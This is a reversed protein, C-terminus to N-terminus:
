SCLSGESQKPHCAAKDLSNNFSDKPCCVLVQRKFEPPYPPHTRPM